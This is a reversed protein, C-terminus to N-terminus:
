EGTRGLYALARDYCQRAEKAYRSQQYESVFSLYSDVAQQYRERQKEEISNLALLYSSKVLLFMQIERYPGTSFRELSGRLAVVAAKYQERDYYLRAQLYERKMLKEYLEKLYRDAELNRDSTPYKAKFEQFAAIARRTNAQDLEARPSSLYHCYAGLYMAEELFGSRPYEEVFRDFSYGASTYDGDEFYCRSLMFVVTDSRRTARSLPLVRELLPIARHYKGRGYYDKAAAYQAQTDTSKLLREYKMCGTLVLPLLCLGVLLHLMWQGGWASPKGGLNRM